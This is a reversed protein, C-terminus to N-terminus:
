RRPSGIGTLISRTSRDNRRRPAQCRAFRGSFSGPVARHALHLAAAQDRRSVVRCVAAPGSRGPGFSIALSLHDGTKSISTKISPSSRTHEMWAATVSSIGSLFSRNHKYRPPPFNPAIRKCPGSGRNIRHKPDGDDPGGSNASRNASHFGASSTDTDLGIACCVV